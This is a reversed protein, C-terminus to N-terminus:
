VPNVDDKKALPNPLKWERVKQSDLIAFLGFMAALAVGIILLMAAVSGVGKFAGGKMGVGIAGFVFFVAVWAARRIYPALDEPQQM